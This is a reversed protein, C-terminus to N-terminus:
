FGPPRHYYHSSDGGIDRRILDNESHSKIQLNGGATIQGTTPAIMVFVDALGNVSAKEGLAYISVRSAADISCEDDVLEAMFEGGAIVRSNPGLHHLKVNHGAYIQTQAGLGGSATFDNGAEARLNQASQIDINNEAFLSSGEGIKGKIHIDSNFPVRRISSGSIKNFFDSLKNYADSSLVVISQGLDGGTIILMSDASPDSKVDITTHSGVHGNVTLDGNRIRITANKGVHGKVFVPGDHQFEEGAEIHDVILVGDPSLIGKRRLGNGDRKFIQKGTKESESFDQPPTRDNSGEQQPNEPDFTGGINKSFIGM